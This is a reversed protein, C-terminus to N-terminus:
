ASAPTAARRMRWGSLLYTGAALALTLAPLGFWLLPQGANRVDDNICALLLVLPCLLMAQLCLVRTSAPDVLRGSAFVLLILAHVGLCVSSLVVEREVTPDPGSVRSFDEGTLLAIQALLASFPGAIGPFALLGIPLAVAVERWSMPGPKSAWAKKRAPRQTQTTVDDEHAALPKLTM